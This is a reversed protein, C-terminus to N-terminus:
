WLGALIETEDLDSVTSSGLKPSGSPLTLVIGGPVGPPASHFHAGIESGALGSYSIDWSFLNSDTNLM